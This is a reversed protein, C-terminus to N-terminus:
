LDLDFRRGDLDVDLRENKKPVRKPQEQKYDRDDDRNHRWTNQLPASGTTPEPPTLSILPVPTIPQPSIVTFQRASSRGDWEVQWQDITAYLQDVTIDEPPLLNRRQAENGFEIVKESCDRRYSSGTAVDKIKNRLFRCVHKIHSDEMSTLDIDQGEKTKWFGPRWIM